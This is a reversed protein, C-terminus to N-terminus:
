RRGGQQLTDRSVSGADLLIQRGDRSQLWPIADSVTPASRRAGINRLQCHKQTVCDDWLLHHDLM